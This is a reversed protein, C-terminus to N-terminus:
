KRNDHKKVVIEIQELPAVNHEAASLKATHKLLSAAFSRVELDISKQLQTNLENMMQKGQVVVFDSIANDISPAQQASANVSFLASSAIAMAFAIKKISTKNNTMKKATAQTTMNTSATDTNTFLTNMIFDKKSLKLINNVASL